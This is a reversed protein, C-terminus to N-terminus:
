FYQSIKLHMFEVHMYNTIWLPPPEAGDAGWTGVAKCSCSFQLNLRSLRTEEEPHGPEGESITPSARGGPPAWLLDVAGGNSLLWHLQSLCRTLIGGPQKGPSTDWDCGVQYASSLSHISLRISITRTIRFLGEKDWAILFVFLIDIKPTTKKHLTKWCQVKHLWSTPPELCGTLPRIWGNM